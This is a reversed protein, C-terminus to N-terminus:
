LLPLKLTVGEKTDSTTPYSVEVKILLTHKGLEAAKDLANAETEEVMEDFILWPATPAVNVSM